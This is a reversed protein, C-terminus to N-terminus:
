WGYLLVAMDFTEKEIAYMSAIQRENFDLIEITRNFTNIAEFIYYGTKTNYDVARM